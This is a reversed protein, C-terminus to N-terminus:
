EGRMEQILQGATIMHYTILHQTLALPYSRREELGSQYWGLM